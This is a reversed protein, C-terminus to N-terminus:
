HQRFVGERHSEKRGKFRLAKKEDKLDLFDGIMALVLLAFSAGDTLLAAAITVALGLEKM